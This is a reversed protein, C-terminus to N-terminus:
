EKFHWSSKKQRRNVRHSYASISNSRWCAVSQWNEDLKSLHWLSPSSKGAMRGVVAISFYANLYTPADSSQGQQRYWAIGCTAFSRWFDHTIIM